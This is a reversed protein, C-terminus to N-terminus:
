FYLESKADKLAMRVKKYRIPELSYLRSRQPIKLSKPLTIRNYIQLADNDAM